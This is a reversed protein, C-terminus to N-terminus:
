VPDLPEDQVMQKYQEVPAYPVQLDANQDTIIESGVISTLNGEKM